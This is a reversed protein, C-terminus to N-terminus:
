EVWDAIFVNTEHPKKGNRHSIWVLQNGDPSFMPFGDFGDSYTTRELATGDVKITYLEFNGTGGRALDRAGGTFVRPKPIVGDFNRACWVAVGFRLRFDTLTIAINCTARDSLLFPRAKPAGTLQLFLV